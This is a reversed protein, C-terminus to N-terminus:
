LKRLKINRIQGLCCILIMAFLSWIYNMMSHLLSTCSESGFGGGGGVGGGLDLDNEIADSKQVFASLQFMSSVFAQLSFRFLLLTSRFGGKRSLVVHMNQLFQLFRLAVCVSLSWFLNVNISKSYQVHFTVLRQVSCSLYSIATSFM